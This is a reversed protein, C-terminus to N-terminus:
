ATAFKESKVKVKERLKESKVKVKERLLLRGM